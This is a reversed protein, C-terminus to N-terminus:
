CLLPLNSPRVSATLLKRLTNALRELRALFFYGPGDPGKGAIFVECTSLERQIIQLNKVKEMHFHICHWEGCGQGDHETSSLTSVLNEKVREFRSQRVIDNYPLNGEVGMVCRKLKKRTVRALRFAEQHWENPWMGDTPVDTMMPSHTISLAPPVSPMDEDEGLAENLISDLSKASSFGLITDLKSVNGPVELYRRLANPCKGALRRLIITIDDQNVAPPHALPSVSVPMPPPRFADVMYLDTDMEIDPDVELMEFDADLSSNLQFSTGAWTPKYSSTLQLNLGINAISQPNRSDSYINM